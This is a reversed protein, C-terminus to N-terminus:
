STRLSVPETFLTMRDTSIGSVGDFAQVAAPMKTGAPFSASSSARIAEYIGNDTSATAGGIRYYFALGDSSLVPWSATGGSALIATNISAFPGTAATGFDTMGVASRTSTTFAKATADTGIITLGDGTLTMTEEAKQFGALANINQVNYAAMSGSTTADAIFLTNVGCTGSAPRLLLLSDGTTSAGLLDDQVAAVSVATVNTGSTAFVTSCVPVSCVNGVCAPAAAGCTGCSTVTRPMGCNDNGTVSECSKGLRACFETDSEPVCTMDATAMDPPPTMDPLETAASLTVTLTVTAGNKLTATGEGVGLARRQRGARRHSRSRARPQRHVISSSQKRCALQGNIPYATHFM